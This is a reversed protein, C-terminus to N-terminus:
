TAERKTQRFRDLNTQLLSILEELKEETVAFRAVTRIPVFPLERAQEEKEEDSGLLLPPAFSGVSIFFVDEHFQSAFQNAIRVDAEDLDVWVLRILASGDGNKKEAV